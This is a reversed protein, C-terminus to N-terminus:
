RGCASYGPVEEGLVIDREVIWIGSEDREPTVVGRGGRGGEDAAENNFRPDDTFHISEIWYTCRGPEIVHMHVHQPTASGPYGGPRITDFRYRGDEDARAWGRLRGHRYAPTGRMEPDRPYIGEADTQYAYVVTGPVPIGDQRLVRGVIRMPEGPGDAPAIRAHTAIDDPIGVFVAECGECPGGVIPEEGSVQVGAPLAFVLPLLLLVTRTARVATTM